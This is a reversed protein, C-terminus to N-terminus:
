NSLQQWFDAAPYDIAGHDLRAIYGPQRTRRGPGGYFEDFRTVSACGQVNRAFAWPWNDAFFPNFDDFLQETTM